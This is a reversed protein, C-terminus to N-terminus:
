RHDRLFPLDDAENIWWLRANDHNAHQLTQQYRWPPNNPATKPVIPTAKVHLPHSAIQAEPTPKLLYHLPHSPSESPLPPFDATQTPYSMMPAPRAQSVPLNRHQSTTVLPQNNPAAVLESFHAVKANLEKVFPIAWEPYVEKGPKVVTLSFLCVFVLSFCMEPTNGSLPDIRLYKSDFEDLITQIRCSCM